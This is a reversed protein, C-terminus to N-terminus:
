MILSTGKPANREPPTSLEVTTASIARTLERGAIQSAFQVGRENVYTLRWDRDLAYFADTVSELITVIQRRSERLAQEARRREAVDDAGAM